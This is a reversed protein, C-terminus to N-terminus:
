LKQKNLIIDFQIKLSDAPYFGLHRFVETGEFNLLVQMPIMKINYYDCISKNNKLRVDYFIVNVDKGFKDKVEQLVEEMKKCERCGVSGFELFTIKYAAKSLNYNYLLQISDKITLPKETQKEPLPKIDCGTLFLITSLFVPIVFFYVREICHNCM